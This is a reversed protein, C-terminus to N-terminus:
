VDLQLDLVATCKMLHLASAVCYIILKNQEAPQAILGTM